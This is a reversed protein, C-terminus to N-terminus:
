AAAIAREKQDDYYQNKKVYVYDNDM